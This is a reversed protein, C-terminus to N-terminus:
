NWCWGLACGTVEVKQSVAFVRDDGGAFRIRALRGRDRPRFTSQFEPPLEDTVPLVAEIVGTAHTSGAALDVRDGPVLSFRYMDPLYALITRDAGYVDLLRDGSKVVQGVTPIKAGVVGDRAARIQGNDYFADLQALAQGARKRSDTVLPLQQELLAAEAQLNTLRAASEYRSNLAQVYRDNSVLGAGTLQQLKQVAIASERAQQDALPILAGLIAARTRLQAEKTELDANQATVQAIDRLMDASELEVVVDGPKVHQGERIRVAAVRASYIAASEAREALVLGNAHLLVADGVAWNLVSALLGCLVLFYVRRGWRIPSSRQENSLVDIRTRARIRQM